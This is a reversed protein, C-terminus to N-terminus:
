VSVADAGLMLPDGFALVAQAAQRRLRWKEFSPAEKRGLEFFMSQLIESEREAPNIREARDQQQLLETARRRLATQATQPMEKYFAQALEQRFEEYEIVLDREQQLTAYDLCARARQRFVQRMSAAAGAHVLKERAVPDKLIKVILGAANTLKQGQAKKRRCVEVAIECWDLQDRGAETWAGADLAKRIFSQAVHPTVQEQCLTQCLLAARRLAYFQEENAAGDAYAVDLGAKDLLVACHDRSLEAIAAPTQALLSTREPVYSPRRRLAIRWTETEVVNYSGLVGIKILQDFAPELTQLLRSFYQPLSVIGLRKTALDRADIIVVDTSEFAVALFRYLHKATLGHLQMHILKDTWTVQGTCRGSTRDLTFSAEQFVNVWKVDEQQDTRTLARFRLPVFRDMALKLRQYFKGHVSNINLIKALERGTFRVTKAFNSQFTLVGLAVFIDLDQETPLGLDNNGQVQWLVKVVTGDPLTKTGDIELKGLRKGVRRELVAFPVAALNEEEVSLNLVPLRSSNRTTM